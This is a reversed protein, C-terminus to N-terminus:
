LCEEAVERMESIQPYFEMLADGSSQRISIEQAARSNDTREKFWEKVETDIQLQGANKKLAEGLFEESVCTVFRGLIEGGANEVFCRPLFVDRSTNHRISGKKIIM